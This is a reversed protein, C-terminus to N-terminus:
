AASGIIGFSSSSMTPLAVHRIERLHQLRVRREALRDEARDCARV